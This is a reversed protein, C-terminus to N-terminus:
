DNKAPDIVPCTILHGIVNILQNEEALLLEGKRGNTEKNILPNLSM